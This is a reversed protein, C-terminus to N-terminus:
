AYKDAGQRTSGWTQTVRSCWCLALVFVLRRPCTAFSVGPWPMPGLHPSTPGMRGCPEAAAAVLRTDLVVDPSIGEAAKIDAAM